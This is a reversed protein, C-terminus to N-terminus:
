LEGKILWKELRELAPKWHAAVVHDVEYQKMGQVAVDRAHRPIPDNIAFDLADFIAKSNPRFWFAGQSAWEVDGAGSEFTSPIKIGAYVTERMATWDTVIVPTGCAQAEVVPLGFGEGCTPSLLIDAAQYLKAIYQPSFGRSYIYQDSTLINIDKIGYAKILGFVDDGSVAGSLEGHYILVAKPYHETFYSWARIVAEINKRDGVYDRNAAVFAAVFVDPPLELEERVKEKDGPRFVEADFVMPIYLPDSGIDKLMQEGHRSMAIPVAAYKVREAVERSIPETDVPVMPVWPVPLARLVAPDYVYPDKLTIIIDCKYRRAHEDIIDNGFAAYRGGVVRVGEFSLTAGIHQPACITIELGLQQLRPVILQTQQGYASPSFPSDSVWLVHM